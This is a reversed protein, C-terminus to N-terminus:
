PTTAANRLGATRMARWRRARALQALVGAGLYGLAGTAAIPWLDLRLDEPLFHPDVGPVPTTSDLVLAVAYFLTVPPCALGVYSGLEFENFASFLILMAFFPIMWLLFVVVGFVRLSASERLGQVFLGTGAVAAVLVLVPLAGPGAQYYAARGALLFVAAGAGITAGLMVLTVGLSSAGDANTSLRSRGHRRARRWAEIVTHRSPTVTTVIFLFAAGLILAGLMLLLELTEPSRQVRDFSRDLAAFIQRYADEQVVVAWVSALVFVLVGGFVYLAGAKSLVHSAQNRWKRWVIMYLVSLMFGQVLLTYATPHMLGAFVPVDRFSDIGSAEAPARMSAPLEQQVLGFFTPRITLFEFFTIGLRSLNPLIFYLAVVLGMSLMTALRPKPVVMGAALGTMHYVWVSTFFVAYFHLLTALSFGSVAVAIATFPLTMAFLAYERVPLGFLYGLIKASPSMPTMRQYDLLGEDREQAVGAAVAGTGFMMLLVAQIVILGPLVAKAADSSSALEQETMTTYTILAVFATVTVTIAGWSLLHPVRLRARASKQWIPNPWTRMAPATSM